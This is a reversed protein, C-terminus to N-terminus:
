IVSQYPVAASLTNELAIVNSILGESHFCGSSSCVYIASRCFHLWRMVLGPGWMLQASKSTFHIESTRNWWSHYVVTWSCSCLVRIKQKCFKAGFLDSASFFHRFSSLSIKCCAKLFVTELLNSLQLLCQQPVWRWFESQVPHQQALTHLPSRGKLSFSELCSHSKLRFELSHYLHLIWPVILATHLAVVHYPWCKQM